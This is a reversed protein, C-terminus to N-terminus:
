VNQPPQWIPMSLKQLASVATPLYPKVISKEIYVIPETTLFHRVVSCCACTCFPPCAEQNCHGASGSDKQLVQQTQSVVIVLEDKCPMFALLLMYVSCIITLYRM